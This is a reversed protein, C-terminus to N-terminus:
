RVLQRDGRHRPNRLPPYPYQIQLLLKRRDAALPEEVIRRPRFLYGRAEAGFAKALLDGGALCQMELRRPRDSQRGTTDRVLQRQIAATGPAALILGGMELGIGIDLAEGTLM